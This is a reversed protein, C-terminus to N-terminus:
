HTQQLSFIFAKIRDGGEFKAYEKKPGDKQWEYLEGNKAKEIDSQVKLMSAYLGDMKSVSEKLAPKDLLANVRAIESNIIPLSCSEAEKAVQQHIKSLQQNIKENAAAPSCVGTFGEKYKSIQDASPPKTPPNAGMALTDQLQKIIGAFWETERKIREPLDDTIKMLAITASGDSSAPLNTYIDCSVFEMSMNPQSCTQRSKALSDTCTYVSKYTQIVQQQINGGHNTAALMIKLQDQVFASTKCYPGLEDILRKKLASYEDIFGDKSVFLYRHLLILLLILGVFIIKDRLRM